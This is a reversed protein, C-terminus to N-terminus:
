QGQLLPQRQRLCGRAKAWGGGGKGPAQPLRDLTGSPLTSLVRSWGRGLGGAKAELLLNVKSGKEFELAKSGGKVFEWWKRWSMLVIAASKAEPRSRSSSRGGPVVGLQQEGSERGWARSGPHLRSNRERESSPQRDKWQVSIEREQQRRAERRPQPGGGGPGAAASAEDRCSTTSTLSRPGDHCAKTGRLWNSTAVVAVSPLEGGRLSGWGPLAWCMRTTETLPPLAESGPAAAQSFWSTVLAQTRPPQSSPGQAGGRGPGTTRFCRLGWGSASPAPGPDAQPGPWSTPLKNTREGDGRRQWLEPASARSPQTQPTPGDGQGHGQERGWM